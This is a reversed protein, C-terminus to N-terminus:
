LTIQFLREKSECIFDNEELSINNVSIKWFSGDAFSLIKYIIEKLSFTSIDWDISTHKM